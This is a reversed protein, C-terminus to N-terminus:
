HVVVRRAGELAVVAGLRESEVGVEDLVLGLLVALVALVGALVARADESVGACELLVDARLVDASASVGTGLAALCEGGAGAQLLVRMDVGAHLWEPTLDALLRVRLEGVQAAVLPVVDIATLLDLAAAARLDETVLRRQGLM